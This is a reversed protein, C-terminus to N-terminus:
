RRKAGHSSNAARLMLETECAFIEVIEAPLLLHPGNKEVLVSDRLKNMVPGKLKKAGLWEKPPYRKGRKNRSWEGTKPDEEGSESLATEWVVRSLWRLGPRDRERLIRELPIVHDVTLDALPCTAGIAEVHDFENRSGIPLLEGSELRAMMYQSGSVIEKVNSLNVSKWGSEWCCLATSLGFAKDLIQKWVSDEMNLIQWFRSDSLLRPNFFVQYAGGSAESGPHLYSREWTRARNSFKGFLDRRTLVVRSETM